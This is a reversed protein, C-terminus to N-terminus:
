RLDFHELLERDVRLAKDLAQDLEDRPDGAYVTIRWWVQGARKQQGQAPTRGLAVKSREVSGDPRSGGGDNDTDRLSV